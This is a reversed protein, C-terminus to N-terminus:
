VNKLFFKLIDSVSVIGIVRADDDMILLRHIRSKSLHRIINEFTETQVCTYVPIKPKEKLAEEITQGVDFDKTMYLVDTRSYVDIVSGKENVIPVASITYQSFMSIVDFVKDTPKATKIKAYTGIGLELLSKKFIPLQDNIKKMLYSLILAHTLIHLICGDSVVPARRIGKKDFFTIVSMLSEDPSLQLLQEPRNRTGIERWKRITNNHILEKIVKPEEHYHYLVDILDTVTLVGCINKTKGDWLVTFQLHEEAALRFAEKVQTDIDFVVVKNSAPMMDYCTHEKLFDIIPKLLQKPSTEEELQFVENEDDDFM